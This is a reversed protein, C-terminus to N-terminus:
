RCTVERLGHFLQTPPTYPFYGDDNLKLMDEFSFYCRPMTATKSAELAKESVGLMSLGAPLMFGKQSGAYLWTM